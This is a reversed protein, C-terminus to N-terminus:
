PQQAAQFIVCALVPHRHEPQVRPTIEDLGPPKVGAMTVPFHAREAVTGVSIVPELFGEESRRGGWRVYEKAASRPRGTASSGPTSAGPTGKAKTVGATSHGMLSVILGAATRRRPPRGPRRRESRATMLPLEPIEGALECPRAGSPETLKRGQPCVDAAPVGAGTERWCSSGPAMGPSPTSRARM